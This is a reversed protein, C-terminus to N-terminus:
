VSVESVISSLTAIGSLGVGRCWQYLSILYRLCCVALPIRLCIICGYYAKGIGEFLWRVITVFM